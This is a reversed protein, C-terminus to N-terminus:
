LMLNKFGGQLYELHLKEVTGYMLWFALLEVSTTLLRLWWPVRRALLMWPLLIAAPILVAACITVGTKGIESLALLLLFGTLMPFAGFIRMSAFLFPLSKIALYPLAACFALLVNLPVLVAQAGFDSRNRSQM